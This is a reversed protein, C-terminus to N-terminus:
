SSDELLKIGAATLRYEVGIAALTTLMAALGEGELQDLARALVGKNALLRQVSEPEIVILDVAAEAEAEALAEDNADEQLGLDKRLNRSWTMYKRGRTGAVYERWLAEDKPDRGTICADLIDWATKAKDAEVTATRTLTEAIASGNDFQKTIYGAADETSDMRQLHHAAASAPRDNKALFDQWRHLNMQQWETVDTDSLLKNSLWLVHIHPHWGSDGRTIELVRIYGVIGMKKRLKESAAGSGFATWARSLVQLRDLLPEEVSHPITFTGMYTSYGRVQSLRMAEAVEARRISLVKTSCVSCVWVSGCTAIGRVFSRGDKVAFLVPGIATNGCKAHTSLQSLRQSYDRRRYLTERRSAKPGPPSSNSAYLSLVTPPSAPPATSAFLTSM